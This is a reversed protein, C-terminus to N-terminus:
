PASSGESPAIRERLDALTSRLAPARATEAELSFPGMADNTPSSRGMADRSERSAGLTGLALRVPRPVEM